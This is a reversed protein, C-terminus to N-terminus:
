RRLLPLYVLRKPSIDIAAVSAQPLGDVSSFDGGIYVTSEGLALSSVSGLAGPNWATAQGSDADLAAIGLRPQGGITSFGGGAYVTTGRTALTNVTHDESPNNAGPNWPTAQGSTTDLAAISARPEGGIMEFQGGAYVTTGSVALTHVTAGFQGSANPNWATANDSDVTTDLAAIHNRPQGGIATFSGGAYLLTNSLALTFVWGSTNPAWATASNTNVTTDLAALGPRFKGGIQGFNGGAYLTTGYPLLTYVADDASPNEASKRAKTELRQVMAEVQRMDQLAVVSAPVTHLFDQPKRADSDLEGSLLRRLRDLTLLTRAVSNGM